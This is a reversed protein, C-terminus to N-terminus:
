GPDAVQSPWWQSAVARPSRAPRRPRQSNCPPQQGLPELFFKTLLSFTQTFPFFVGRFVACRGVGEVKQALKSLLTWRPYFKLVVGSFGGNKHPLGNRGFLIGELCFFGFTFLKELIFVNLELHDQYFLQSWVGSSFVPSYRSWVFVLGALLFFCRKPDM